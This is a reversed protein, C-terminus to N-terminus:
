KTIVGLVNHAQFVANDKTAILGDRSQHYIRGGFHHEAGRPSYVHTHFESAQLVPVSWLVVGRLKALLAGPDDLHELVEFATYVDAPPIEDHELDLVDYRLSPAEYLTRAVHVADQCKDVGLVDQAVWSLMATGYGCGCGLDVVRRGVCYRLAWAYRMVHRPMLSASLAHFPVAREGTYDIM